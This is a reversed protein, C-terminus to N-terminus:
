YRKRETHLGKMDNRKKMTVIPINLMENNSHHGM